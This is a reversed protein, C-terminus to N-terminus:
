GLLGLGHALQDLLRRARCQGEAAGSGAGDDGPRQALQQCSGRARFQDGRAPGGAVVEVRDQRASGMAIGNTRSISTSYPRKTGSTLTQPPPRIEPSPQVKSAIGVGPCVELWM